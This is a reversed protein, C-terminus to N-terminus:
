IEREFRAARLEGNRKLQYRVDIRLVADEASLEVGQVVIHESLWRQLAGQIMHELATALENSNPAFVAHRLETGFTPRNVREGQGTFLLQEILDRLHRDLDAASTRGRDDVRFPFGFAHLDPAKM